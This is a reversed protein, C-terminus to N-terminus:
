FHYVDDLNRTKIKQKVAEHETSSIPEKDYSGVNIVCRKYKCLSGLAKQLVDDYCIVKRICVLLELM